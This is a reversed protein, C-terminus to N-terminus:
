TVRKEQKTHAHTTRLRREDADNESYYYLLIRENTNNNKKHNNVLCGGTEDHRNAQVRRKAVGLETEKRM